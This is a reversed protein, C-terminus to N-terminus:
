ATGLPRLNYRAVLDDLWAPAGFHLGYREALEAAADPTPPGAAAMDAVERFFHEFGVPSIIEIMRAPTPGANWMAHMESRPKTIYGGPREGRGPRV